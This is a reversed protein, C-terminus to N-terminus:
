LHRIAHQQAAKSCREDGLLVREDGLFRDTCGEGLLAHLEDAEDLFFSSAGINAVDELDLPKASRSSCGLDTRGQVRIRLNHVTEDGVLDNEVELLTRDIFFLEFLGQLFVFDSELFDLLILGNKELSVCANLQNLRRLGANEGPQTKKQRELEHM